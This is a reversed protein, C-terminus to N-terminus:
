LEREAVQLLQNKTHVLEARQEAGHFFIDRFTVSCNEAKQRVLVPM